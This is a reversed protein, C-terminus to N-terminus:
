EIVQDARQLLSPPITLGLAKATKLNIVLEFKTPQEVPLDAPKAGKLIKDVYSAARGAVAGMDAGYGVLGGSRVYSSSPFVTALHTRRVAQAIEHRHSFTTADQIVLVGDPRGRTLDALAADLRPGSDVEVSYVTLGLSRAATESARMDAATSANRPNGLIAVRRLRPVLERLLELRKGSVDTMMVSTGTVNGGPHTLSSVLGTGVPDGVFLMVIPITSIAAKATVTERTGVTVIVDVKLRLLEAAFEPLREPQNDAYRYEIVLNQGEVYGLDRLSDVFRNLPNEPQLNKNRGEQLLGIRWSTGAPQQAGAALPAALLGLTAGSIFARRDM